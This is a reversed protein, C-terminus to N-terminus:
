VPLRSPLDRVGLHPAGAPPRRAKPAISLSPLRGILRVAELPTFPTATTTEPLPEEQRKVNMWLLIQM